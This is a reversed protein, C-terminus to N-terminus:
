RGGHYLHWIADKYGFYAAVRYNNDKCTIYDYLFVGTMLVVLPTICIWILIQYTWDWINNM